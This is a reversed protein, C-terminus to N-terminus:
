KGDSGARSQAHLVDSRRPQSVDGDTYWLDFANTYDPVDFFSSGFIIFDRNGNPYPVIPHDFEVTVWGGAGISLIQNTQWAPDFPDVADGYSDATSPQGLVASTNTYGAAYGRGPNYNVVAAAYPSGRSTSVLAMGASALSFLLKRRM